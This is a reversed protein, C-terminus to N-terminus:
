LFFSNLASCVQTSCALFLSFISNTKSSSTASTTQSASQIVQTFRFDPFFNCASPIKIAIQLIGFV